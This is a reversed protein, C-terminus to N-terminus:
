RTTKEVIGRFMEGQWLGKGAQAESKVHFTLEISFEM